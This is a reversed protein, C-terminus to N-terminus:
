RENIRCITIKYKDKPYSKDEIIIRGQNTDVELIHFRGSNDFDSFLHIIFNIITKM